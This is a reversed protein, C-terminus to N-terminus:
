IIFDSGIIGYFFTIIKMIYFLTIAQGTVWHSLLEKKIRL